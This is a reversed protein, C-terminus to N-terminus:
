GEPHPTEAFGLAYPPARGLEQALTNAQRKLAIMDLERGVAARHFRELADIHQAAQEQEEKRQTIDIAALMMEDGLRLRSLLVTKRRGDRCLVQHEQMAAPQGGYQWQAHWDAEAAARQGSNLLARDRWSAVTPTDERRYGFLDVFAQNMLQVQGARNSTALAVPAQEFLQEFRLEALKRGSIDEIVSIFYDPTGEATWVLAVTLNVWVTHGAKHLYRKELTYSNIQRAQMQQVFQRDTALDDPHTIDQFTKTLLENQSYGVIACLTHNVRLWHGDPAVLAIGVAAQEFTAAFRDESSRLTRRLKEHFWAFLAGMLLFGGISFGASLGTVAQSSPPPIFLYWVLLASLTTAALGGVLGGLWASFFAAPFFLFWVYPKIWPEWLQWQLAAALFPLLLAIALRMRPNM